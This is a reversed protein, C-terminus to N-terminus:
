NIKYSTIFSYIGYCFILAYFSYSYEINDLLLPMLFNSILWISFLLKVIIDINIQLFYFFNNLWNNKFIFNGNHKKQGRYIIYESKYNEYKEYSNEKRPVLFLKVPSYNKIKSFYEKIEWNNASYFCINKIRQETPDDTILDFSIYNIKKLTGDKDIYEYNMILFPENNKISTYNYAIKGSFEYYSLFYKDGAIPNMEVIHKKTAYKM